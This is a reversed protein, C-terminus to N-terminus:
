KKEDMFKSKKFCICYSVIIENFSIGKSIGTGLAKVFAEKAAFRKAFCNVSKKKNTCKCIEEHNFIRKLFKKNILSKKVRDVNVIDTGIGYIIM